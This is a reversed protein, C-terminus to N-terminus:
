LTRVTPVYVVEVDVAVVYEHVFSMVVHYEYVPAVNGVELDILTIEPVRIFPGTGTIEMKKKMRKCLAFLMIVVERLIHPVIVRVEFCVIDGKELRIYIVCLGEGHVSYACDEGMNLSPKKHSSFSIQASM